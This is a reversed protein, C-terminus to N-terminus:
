ELGIDYLCKITSKNNTIVVWQEPRGSIRHDICYNDMGIASGCQIIKVGHETNMANHHRHCIIIGDPKVGTMLTLNKVVNSLSDKDGHVGYFLKGGRTRFSIITDDIENKHIKINDNKAFLLELYFPVLADLEEGKLQDEKNPSIRSHNGSVSYVNIVEFEKQLVAIFDGILVSVIKVQEVVNENNELRLQLHIIGSLLDGGLVIHCEKCQNNKQIEIIEDLYQNLRNKLVESNFVNFTSNVELGSHLYALCVIMDDETNSIEIPKVYDLGGVSKEIQQKVLDIFSERRAQERLSRQYDTREDQLKQKEIKLQRQEEQLIKIYAESTLDKFVGAEYFKKSYQYPKRYASENRYEDEDTRCEKNIIEAIKDWEMDLEGSDKARGLRWIFQEENENPLKKLEVM